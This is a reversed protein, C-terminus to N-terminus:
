VLMIGALNFIDPNKIFFGQCTKKQMTYNAPKHAVGLSFILSVLSIDVYM